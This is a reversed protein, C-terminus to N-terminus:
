FINLFNQIEDESQFLNSLLRSFSNDNSKPITLIIMKKKNKIKLIKIHTLIHKNIYIIDM